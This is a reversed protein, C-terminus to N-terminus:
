ATVGEQATEGLKGERFNYPQPETNGVQQMARVFANPVKRFLNARGEILRNM